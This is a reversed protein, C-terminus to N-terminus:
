NNNNNTTFNGGSPFLPLDFVGSCIEESYPQCTPIQPYGYTPVLLEVEAVVKLIVTSCCTVVFTNTDQYTGNLSVFNVTSDITVPIVANDPVSLVVDLSTSYSSTAKGAVGNADAYIVEIPITVTAQVRSYGARDTLPTVTVGSLVGKVSSSVASVFTLPTTPNQPTLNSLVLTVQENSSQTMCADFVRNVQICAKECLGYRPNGNRAGPIKDRNCNCFSM